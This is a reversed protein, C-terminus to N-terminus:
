NARESGSAGELIRRAANLIGEESSEIESSHIDFTAWYFVSRNRQFAVALIRVEPHKHLITDCLVPRKGSEDMSIVVLDPSNKAVEAPIEADDVVEGVIEMDPQDTLTTLILERMLRPQNAVLIRIARNM